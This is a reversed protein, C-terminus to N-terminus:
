PKFPLRYMKGRHRLAVEDQNIEVVDIDGVTAGERVISGDIVAMRKGPKPSWAIAQLRIGADPFIPLETEAETPKLPQERDPAPVPETMTQASALAEKLIDPQLKVKPRARDVPSPPEKKSVQKGSTGTKVATERRQQRTIATKIDWTKKGPDKKAKEAKQPLTGSSAAPRPVSPKSRASKATASPPRIEAQTEQTKEPDVLALISKGVDPLQPKFLFRNLTYGTGMISVAALLVLAFAAIFGVRRGRRSRQAGLAAAPHFSPPLSNSAPPAQQDVKKLAKIITSM